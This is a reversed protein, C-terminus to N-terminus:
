IILESKKYLIKINEKFKELDERRIKAGAAPIHGGATSEPLDKTAEKLFENLNIKRSQDRASIILEQTGSIDTIVILTKDKFFEMSLITSLTSSIHLKPKIEYIVLRDYKEAKNRNEIWKNLEENAKKQLKKLYDNNIIDNYNKAEELIKLIKETKIDTFMLATSLTGKAKGIQTRFITEKTEIKYKKLINDCFDKWTNYGMDSILGIVSIWDLDELDTLESFLDYVLKSAPYKSSDIEKNIESAHIFITRESNLDYQYQHHDIILLEINEEAKKVMEPKVDISLDTFIAKKINNKKFYEIIEETIEYTTYSIINNIKLNLIREIAKKIIVASCLGDACYAHYLICLNDGQKISDIYDKLKQM